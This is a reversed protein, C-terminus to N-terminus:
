RSYQGGCARNDTSKSYVNYSTFGRMKLPEKAKTEQLCALAPNNQLLYELEPRNQNFSNINWQLISM